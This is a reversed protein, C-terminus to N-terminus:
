IGGGCPLIGKCPVVSINLTVEMGTYYAHYRYMVILINSETSVIDMALKDFSNKRPNRTYTDCMTKMEKLISQNKPTVYENQYYAIGGFICNKINPGTYTMNIMSVNLYMTDTTISYVCYIVYEKKCKDLTIIAPTIVELYIYDSRVNESSFIVANFKLEKFRSCLYFNGDLIAQLELYCQFTSMAIYNGKFKILQTSSDPGDYINMKLVPDNNESFKLAIKYLKNM